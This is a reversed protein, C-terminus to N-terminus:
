RPGEVSVGRRAVQDVVWREFRQGGVWHAPYTLWLLPMVWWRLRLTVVLEAPM